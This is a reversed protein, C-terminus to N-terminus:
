SYSFIVFAGVKFVGTTCRGCHVKNAEAGLGWIKCLRQKENRRPVVATGLSISFLAEAFNQPAFLTSLLSTSTAYSPTLPPTAQLNNLRRICGSRTAVLIKITNLKNRIYMYFRCITVNLQLSLAGM